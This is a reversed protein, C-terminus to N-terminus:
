AAKPGGDDIPLYRSLWTSVQPADQGTLGGLWSAYGILQALPAEAELMFADDSADARVFSACRRAMDKEVVPLYRDPGSALVLMYPERVPNGPEYRVVPRRLVIRGAFLAALSDVPAALDVECRALVRLGEYAAVLMAGEGAAPGRWALRTLEARTADDCGQVLQEIPYEPFPLERRGKGPAKAAGRNGYLALAM